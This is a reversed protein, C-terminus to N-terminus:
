GYFPESFTEGSNLGIWERRDQAIPRSVRIKEFAESLTLECYTHLYWAVALVSREMGMHCHVVVSRGKYRSDDILSAVLGVQTLQREYFEEEYGYTKYNEEATYPQIVIHAHADSQIEEAVNIVLCGERLAEGVGDVSTIGVAAISDRDGNKPIVWSIESVKFNTPVPLFEALEEVVQQREQQNM